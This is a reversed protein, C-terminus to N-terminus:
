NGGLAKSAEENRLIVAVVHALLNALHHHEGRLVDDRIWGKGLQVEQAATVKEGVKGGIQLLLQKRQEMVAQDGTADQDETAPLTDSASRVEELRRFAICVEELTPFHRVVRDFNVERGPRM